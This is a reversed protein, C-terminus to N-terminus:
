SRVLRLADRPRKTVHREEGRHWLRVKPLDRSADPQTVKSRTLRDKVLVIDAVAQIQHRAARDAEKKPRLVALLQRNRPELRPLEKALKGGNVLLRSRGGGDRTFRGVQQHQM